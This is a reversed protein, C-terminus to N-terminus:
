SARARARCRRRRRVARLERDGVHGPQDLARAVADPEPVCNRAWRSRARRSTWTISAESPSARRAIRARDVALEGGVAGPEVLPRLDDHEVLDSRSGLRRREGDLVLADDRTM